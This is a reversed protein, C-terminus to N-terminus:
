RRERYRRELRSPPRATRRLFDDVTMEYSRKEIARSTRSPGGHNYEIHHLSRDYHHYQMADMAYPPPPGYPMPPMPPRPHHYDRLYDPYGGNMPPADRRSSYREMALEQGPSYRARRSFRYGDDPSDRRHRPRPSHSGRSTRSRRSHVRALSHRGHHRRHPSSPAVPRRSSSSRKMRHLIAHLDIMDDVPFLRCLEEAVRPEIEQGDRGIKVQKGENWPNYLHATKTFPLERRCIWDVQFVGGLARASLGPPLVWQIPPCNHNSESALRAFGQFKGSEKVSYVLIVNKCERYAQNLKAENQPPTSWVGKAKSLAVNEHNNSKVLFFRANRFFYKILHHDSVDERRGVSSSVRPRKHGKDESRTRKEYIIPSHRRKRPVHHRPSHDPESAASSSDSFSRSQSRSRSRSTSSGLSCSCSEHDSSSAESRTDFDPRKSPVVPATGTLMPEEAVQLEEATPAMHLRDPDDDPLAKTTATKPNPSTKEVKVKVPPAPDPAKKVAGMPKAAAAAPPAKKSPKSTAVAPKPPATKKAAQEKTVAAAAANEAPPKANTAPVPKTKAATPKAAPESKVAKAAVLKKVKAQPAAAKAQQPLQTTSSVATPPVSSSAAAAKKKPVAAAAPKPASMKSVPSAKKQLASETVPAKKAPKTGPKRKVQSATSSSVPPKAPTKKGLKKEEDKLEAALDDDEANDLLEDLVNVEMDKNETDESTM